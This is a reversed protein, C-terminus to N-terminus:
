CTIDNIWIIVEAVTSVSQLHTKPANPLLEYFLFPFLALSFFTEKEMMEGDLQASYDSAALLAGSDQEVDM